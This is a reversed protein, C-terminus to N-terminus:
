PGNLCHRLIWISSQRMSPGRATDAPDIAPLDEPYSLLNGPEYPTDLALAFFSKTSFWQDSVEDPFVVLLSGQPEGSDAAFIPYEWVNYDIVTAYVQDDTRATISQSIRIEESTRDLKSFSEGYTAKLSSEFATGIKLSTEASVSWDSKVEAQVGVVETTTELYQTNFACNFVFQRPVNYCNNVDRYESRRYGDVDFPVTPYPPGDYSAGNANFIDFHTPPANLIVLPQVIESALYYTPKGVRFGDGDFDGVALAYSWPVPRMGTDETELAEDTLTAFLRVGTISIGDDISIIPEYVNLNFRRTTPEGPDNGGFVEETAIVLEAALDTNTDALEIFNQSFKYQEETNNNYAQSAVEDFIDIDGGPTLTTEYMRVTQNYAFALEDIGDRNMDGAALDIPNLQNNNAQAELEITNTIVDLGPSTQLLYLYTDAPETFFDDGLYYSFGFAVEEVLDGNFDGSTAAIAGLSRTAYLVNETRDSTRNFSFSTDASGTINYVVTFFQNSNLGVLVLEEDRDGDLDAAAIDFNFLEGAAPLDQDSISAVLVPTLNADVDYLELHVKADAGQYALVFEDNIDGDVNITVLHPQRAADGTNAILDSTATLRTANSWSLTETVIQPVVITVRNNLGEWAAVLDDLSDGNLDGTAATVRQNGYAGTAGSEQQRPQPLLQFPPDTGSITGEQPVAEYLKQYAVAEDDQPAIEASWVLLIDNAEAIDYNGRLPDDPEDTDQALVPSIGPSTESPLIQLLGILTCFCVLLISSRRM